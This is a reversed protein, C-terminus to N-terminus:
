QKHIKALMYFQGANYENNVLTDFDSALIQGCSISRNIHEQLKQFAISMLKTTTEEYNNTQLQKLGEDSYEKGGWIVVTNSKDAKNVIVEM